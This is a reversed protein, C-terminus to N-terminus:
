ANEPRRHHSLAVPLSGCLDFGTEKTKALMDDASFHRLSYSQVGMRFPAYLNAMRVGPRVGTKLPPDDALSEIQALLPLCLASATVVAGRLLDRRSLTPYSPEFTM